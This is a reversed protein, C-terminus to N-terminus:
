CNSIENNLLQVIQQAHTVIMFHGGNKVIHTVGTNPLLLIKDADGHIHIIKKLNHTAKWNLVQFIAWKLFDPHTDHIIIDLLKKDEFKTVGFLFANLKDLHILSKAPLISTWFPHKFLKYFMPLEVEHKVSSILIIKETLVFRSCELAMIGGFSVGVFIPNKFPIQKAIREAYESISQNNEPLEWEIYYPNIGNLKLREFVRKDAGLGSFFVINYVEYTPM